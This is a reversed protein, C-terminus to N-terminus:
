SSARGNRFNYRLNLLKVIIIGLSAKGFALIATRAFTPHWPPIGGTIFHEAYAPNTELIALMIYTKKRIFHDPSLFAFGADFYPLLWPYRLTADWFYQERHNIAPALALIANQYLLVDRESPNIGLLYKTIIEAEKNQM